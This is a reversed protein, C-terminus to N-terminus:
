KGEEVDVVRIAGSICSLACAPFGNCFDCKYVSKSENNVRIVGYNCKEACVGCSRCKKYDIIPIGWEEKINIAGFPCADICKMDDCNSCLFLKRVARADDKFIKMVAYEYSFAERKALSCALVCSMCGTCKSSEVEIIRM